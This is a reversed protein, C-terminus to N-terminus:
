LDTLNQNIDKILLAIESLLHAKQENQQGEGELYRKLHLQSELIDEEMFPGEMNEIYSWRFRVSSLSRGMEQAIVFLKEKGHMKIKDTLLM